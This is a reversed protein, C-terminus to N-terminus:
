IPPILGLVSLAIIGAVAIAPLVLVFWKGPWSKKFWLGILFFYAAIPLLIISLALAYIGGHRDEPRPEPIVALLFLLVAFSAIAGSAAWSIKQISEM